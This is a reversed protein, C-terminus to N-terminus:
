IVKAENKILHSQCSKENFIDWRLPLRNKNLAIGNNICEGAREYNSEEFYCISLFNLIEPVIININSTLLQEYPNGDDKMSELVVREFYKRAKKADKNTYYNGIMTDIVLIKDSYKRSEMAVREANEIDGKLIYAAVLNVFVELFATWGDHYGVKRMDEIWQEGYEIVKASDGILHYTKILHTAIHLDHPNKKYEAELVPLSRERKKKLLEAKGEFMYGYHNFIVNSAFLYPPDAVPKNHIKREYHFKGNNTFIRAQITESYQLRDKTYFNLLKVFATPQKINPSLLVHELLYLSEQKLEEDADVILIKKGIAREIGYNRAKAFDWPRFKKEYIKRTYQRAVSLTRDTSGTDVIVLECWREHIIPLFSDLCRKLNAEEDKVIMCISVKKM